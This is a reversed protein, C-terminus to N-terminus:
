VAGRPCASRQRARREQFASQPERYSSAGLRVLDHQERGGSLAGVHSKYSVRASQDAAAKLGNCIRAGGQSDLTGDAM